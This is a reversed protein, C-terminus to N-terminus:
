ELYKIFTCLYIVIIFSSEVYSIKINIIINLLFIILM